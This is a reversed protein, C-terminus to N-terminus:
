TSTKCDKVTSAIYLPITTYGTHSIVLSYIESNNIHTHFFKMCLSSNKELVKMKFLMEWSAVVVKQEFQLQLNAAEWAM